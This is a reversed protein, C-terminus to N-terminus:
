SRKSVNELVDKIPVRKGDRYSVIWADKVGMERLYKKFTDADWYDRFVGLSFQNFGEENKDASFNPNNQAYKSLDKNKFAGIQVKFVVGRQDDTSTTQVPQQQPQNVPQEPQQPQAKL